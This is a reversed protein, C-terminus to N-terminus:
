IMWFPAIYNDAGGATPITSNTYQNSGSGFMVLGNTTVYFESYTNGFFDFDFGIPLPGYNRDDTYGSRIITGPYETEPPQAQIMITVALILLSLITRIKLTSFRKM